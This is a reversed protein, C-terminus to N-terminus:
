EAGRAIGDHITQWVTREGDDQPLGCDAAGVYLLHEAVDPAILGERILEGARCAAWYLLGHREGVQAGTLKGLVGAFRRRGVPTVKGAPCASGHPVAQRTVPRVADAIWEPLPAMRGARQWRYRAGTPHVSPPVLVYGGHGRTEVKPHLRRSTNPLTESTTFWVHTGGDKRGTSSTRTPPVDQAGWWTTADEGDLDVVYFRGTAIAVNATPWRTWSAIIQEPDRSADKSGRRTLPEKGKPKCPLVAAGSAAYILAARVPGDPLIESAETELKMSRSRLREALAPDCGERHWREVDQVYRQMRDLLRREAGQDPTM